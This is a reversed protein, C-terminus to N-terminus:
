APEKPIVTKQIQVNPNQSVPYEEYTANCGKCFFVGPKPQDSTFKHCQPCVIGAQKRM